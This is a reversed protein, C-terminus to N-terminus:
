SYEGRNVMPRIDQEIWRTALADPVRSEMGYGTIIRIKKEETAILLLIGNNKGKQGIGNERFVRLGIDALENGNRNPFLITVAQETTNKEHDQAVSRLYELDNSSLVDSFDEVYEDIRPMSMPEFAFARMSGVCLLAIFVIKRLM